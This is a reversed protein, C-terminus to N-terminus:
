KKDPTESKVVPTQTKEKANDGDKYIFKNGLWNAIPTVAVPSIFRYITGFVLLKRFIGMGYIRNELIKDPCNENIYKGVSLLSYKKNKKIRGALKETDFLLKSQADAEKYKKVFETDQKNAKAQQREAESSIQSDAYKLTLKEWWNGIKNDAYYAGLTSLVFTLGQNIALTKRKKEDLNKNRLTQSMYMSSIVASGVFQMHDVVSDLKEAKSALWQAFRSELFKANYYKAMGEIFNDRVKLIPAFYKSKTPLTSGFNPQNNKIYGNNRKQNNLNYTQFTINM